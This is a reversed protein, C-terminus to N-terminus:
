FDFRSGWSNGSSPKTEPQKPQYNYKDLSVPEINYPAYTSLGKAERYPFDGNETMIYSRIYQGRIVPTYIRKIYMEGPRILDLSGVSVLPVDVIESYDPNLESRLTPVYTKGCETSFIEKTKSNQSGLFIQANCNDRIIIATDPSYVLDLQAYSQLVLHFWINRSRSTAIKNEFDKIRPVNGFEDLMFHLPRTNEGREAKELMFKYVWDIFLGAIKFDSKDYDRTIVFIAFPQDGNENLDITNGTTMSLIHNQFWDSIAGDFVGCYSKMTNSANALATCMLRITDKSKNQTLPHDHLNEDGSLIPTKLALYLDRITKITMHDRTFGSKKNAADELMMRLIGRLLDQAGYEWSPDHRNQVTIFMNAFQNILDDCKAAVTDREGALYMDLTDKDPFAMGNYRFYTLHIFASAPAMLTLKKDPDGTIEKVGKGIKDLRANENYLDLLPNWRDSRAINKFNLVYLKYGNDVLHQANRDFLEGKPDTLFLNPKVKQKAIARIQPEVCGTTKGSGTGGVYLEHSFPLYYYRLRAGVKKEAPLAMFEEQSCSSGDPMLYDSSYPFGDIDTFSLEDYFVTKARYKDGVEDYRLKGSFGYHKEIYSQIRRERYSLDNM